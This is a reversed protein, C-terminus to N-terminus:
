DYSIVVTPNNPAFRELFSSPRTGPQNKELPQAQSSPFKSYNIQKDVPASKELQSSLNSPKISQGFHM